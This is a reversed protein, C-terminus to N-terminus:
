GRRRRRAMLGALGLGILALSGPEPMHYYKYTTVCGFQWGGDAAWQSRGTGWYLIGDLTADGGAQGPQETGLLDDSSAFAPVHNIKKGFSYSNNGMFKANILGSSRLHARM